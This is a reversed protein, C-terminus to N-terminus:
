SESEHWALRGILPVFVCADYEEKRIKGHAYRVVYLTQSSRSGVPIVMKGEESMQGVLDESISPSAATILIRDFPAREPAGVSGDGVIFEVNHISLDALVRKAQCSLEEFREITTVHRSLSALIATQYGSGTGIELVKEDGLLDLLETMRAVMYPQSITQACAIGIPHDSYANRVHRAPVFRHRPINKFVELVRPSFIGRGKIQIEVMRHREERTRDM